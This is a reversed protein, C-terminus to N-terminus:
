RHVLVELHADSLIRKDSVSLRCERRLGNGDGTFVLAFDGSPILTLSGSVVCLKPQRSPGDNPIPERFESAILAVDHLTSGGLEYLRVLVFDTFETFTVVGFNSSAVARQCQQKCRV